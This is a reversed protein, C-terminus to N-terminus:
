TKAILLYPQWGQNVRCFILSRSRGDIGVAFSFQSATPSCAPNPSQVGTRVTEPVEHLLVFAEELGDEPLSQGQAAEVADRDFRLVYFSVCFSVDWYATGELCILLTDM